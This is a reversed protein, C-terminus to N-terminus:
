EIMLKTVLDTFKSRVSTHLELFSFLEQGVLKDKVLATGNSLASLKPNDIQADDSLLLIRCDSDCRTLLTKISSIDLNEAEDIILLTKHFSRGRVHAITEIEFKGSQILLEIETEAEQRNIDMLKELSDYLPSLLPQIKEEKTGPLFGIDKGSVPDLTKVYVFKNFKLNKGENITDMAYSVAMLTNHTIIFDDTAYCHLPSDVELCKMHTDEEQIIEKIYIYDKNKTIFVNDGNVDVFYGTSKAMSIISDKYINNYFNVSNYKDFIPHYEFLCKLLNERFEINFIIDKNLINKLIHILNSDNYNFINRSGNIIMEKVKEFPFNDTGVFKNYYIIPKNTLNIIPYKKYDGNLIEKLEVVLDGKCQWLHEDCCNTYTGDEFIVKYNKRIGRDFINLVKHPLGDECIIEEGVNITGITSPIIIDKSVKWIRSNLPQAKGSGASGKIQICPVNTKYLLHAYYQQEKNLPKIGGFMRYDNKDNIRELSKTEGNFFTLITKKPNINSVFEYFCNYVLDTRIKSLTCAITKESKYMENIIEDEIEIKKYGKYEKHNKIDCKFVNIGLSSAKIRMGLDNTVLIYENNTDTEQLYKVTQIILDDNITYKTPYINEPIKIHSNDYLEIKDNSLEWLETLERIAQRAMYARNPKDLTQHKQHDLESIVTLPVIITGNLENLLQPLNLWVNTDVVYKIM